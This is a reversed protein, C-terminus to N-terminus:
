VARCLYVTISIDWKHDKRNPTLIKRWQVNEGGKDEASNIFGGMLGGVLLYELDHPHGRRGPISNLVEGLRATGSPPCAYENGTVAHKIHSRWMEYLRKGLVGWHSKLCSGM